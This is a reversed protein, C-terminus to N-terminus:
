EHYCEGDKCALELATDVAILVVGWVVSVAAIIAFKVKDMLFGEELNKQESVKGIL